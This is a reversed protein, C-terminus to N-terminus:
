STEISSCSEMDHVQCVSFVTGRTAHNAWINYAVLIIIVLICVLLKFNIIPTIITASLITSDVCLLHFHM